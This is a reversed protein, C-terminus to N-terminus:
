CTATLFSTQDTLAGAHDQVYVQVGNVNGVRPQASVFFGSVFATATYFCASVDRDFIVEYFGTSLRASSVVRSGRALTGGATLEATMPKIYYGNIDIAVYTAKFLAKVTIDYTGSTNLTIPGGASASYLNTFGMFASTSPTAGYPYIQLYGYGTARVATVTAAVATASEPVGCGGSVGGQDTFGVTGAVHFARSHGAAIRGGVAYTNVVRCPTIATFEAETSTDIAAFPAAAPAAVRPTGGLRGGNAMAVGAGASLGLIATATASLVLKSSTKMDPGRERPHPRVSDVAM